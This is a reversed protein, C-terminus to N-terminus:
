KNLRIVGTQTLLKRLLALDFSNIKGDNNMDIGGKDAKNFKSLLVSIDILDTKGDGNGDGKGSSFPTGTPTPIPTPTPSTIPTPTPIVRGTSVTIGNKTTIINQNDSNRFVATDDTFKIEAEAGAKKARFYITAMLGAPQGQKTQYGPDPVGGVLSIEGKENDFYEEIWNKIFFVVGEGPTPTPKSVPFIGFNQNLVPNDPSLTFYVSDDTTREYGEPVYHTVRWSLNKTPELNKFAYYGNQDTEFKKIVNEGKLDDSLYVMEKDLRKEEEDMVGNNNSDIFVYGAVGYGPIPSPTPTSNCNDPSTLEVVNSKPGSVSQIWVKYKTNLKVGPSFFNSLILPRLTLRGPIQNQVIQPESEVTYTDGTDNFNLAIIPQNGSCYTQATLNIASSQAYATSVGQVDTNIQGEGEEEIGDGGLNTQIQVVELLDTPFNLKATFLNAADFDSRTYLDVAILRGEQEPKIFQQLPCAWGGFWSTCGGEDIYKEVLYFGTIPGESEYGAKPAFIQKQQVLYVGVAIGLLLFIILALHAIGRESKFM